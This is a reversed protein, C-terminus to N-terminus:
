MAKSFKLFGQCFEFGQQPCTGPFLQYPYFGNKKEQDAKCMPANVPVKYYQYLCTTIIRQMDQVNEIKKKTSLFHSVVM